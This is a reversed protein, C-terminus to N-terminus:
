VLGTADMAIGSLKRGVSEDDLAFGGENDTFEFGLFRIVRQYGNKVPYVILVTCNRLDLLDSFEQNGIRFTNSQVEASRAANVSAELVANNLEKVEIDLEYEKVGRGVAHAKRHGAGRIVTKPQSAKWSLSQVAMLKVDDVLISIEEGSVGQIYGETAM